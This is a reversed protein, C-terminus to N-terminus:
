DHFYIGNDGRNPWYDVCDGTRHIDVTLCHIGGDWFGRDSFNCVHPTFGYEELKRLAWDNESICLINKEDVILMNVEYITERSDGVWFEAKKLITENFYQFNKGQVWWSGPSGRQITTDPLFNIDWDPFTSKYEQKYHTSFISGAKVPCFIGDSHDGTHTVHVRYDKAFTKLAELFTTYRGSDKAEDVFIDRGVRVTSPPMVCCMPDPISRDLVTVKQNLKRYKEITKDFGTYGDVYQPIIYLTDGITHAWDRPTIPPKCLNGYDDLYDDVTDFEPRQVVVGLEILKKEIDNLDRKTQEAIHCLLDQERNSFTNYYEVPYTDGLWVEKLPQFGSHSSIIM